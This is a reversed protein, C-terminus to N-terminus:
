SSPIAGDKSIVYAVLRPDGPEDERVTAVAASVAEHRALVTEIEGLEIRFGRVKVQDDIRGLYEVNGDARYQALDGTKYLRNGPSEAFPNPIFREATLDPRDRYGRALGAGGIYLEGAVGIPVPKLVDDLIYLTTNGIPRGITLPVGRSTIPAVTSWITTETPGYMNWLEADRAVLDDALGLPLAEGGCLVKLGTRGQWGANILMRWTTPTAQMVTVGFEDMLEMLARPDASAEQSAIVVRAGTVLPLYLELGAIDFSLTTVALLVDNEDLGPRERMTYLFNVLARHPIEVGKPTGTSGSTYIVYALDESQLQVAPPDIPREAIRADDSDLVVIQQGSAPLKAAVGQETVVVKAGSHELMFSQRADPYAPDIPVYAAGAKLIGLLGILMETSRTLSIGVLSGREVGLTRLHHALQNSRVDLEGYRLDRVADTVAVADPRMGAVESVLDHLCALTPYPAETANWERPIESEGEPVRPPEGLRQFAVAAETRNTVGLKRYISTLHFKVAHVTVELRRAVEPNTLGEAVHRLVDEERPTLAPISARTRPAQQLM